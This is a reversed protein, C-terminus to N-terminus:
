RCSACPLKRSSPILELSAITRALGTPRHWAPAALSACCCNLVVRRSLICNFSTSLQRPGHYTSSLYVTLNKLPQQQHVATPAFNDTHSPPEANIPAYIFFASQPATSSKPRHHTPPYGNLRTKLHQHQVLAVVFDHHLGGFCAEVVRSFPCLHQSQLIPRLFSTCRSNRYTCCYSSQLSKHKPAPIAPM